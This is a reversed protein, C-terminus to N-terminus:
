YGRDIRRREKKRQISERIDSLNDAVEDSVEEKEIAAAEEERKREEIRRRVGEQIHRRHEPSIPSSRWFPNREKVAAIWEISNVTRRISDAIKNKTGQSMKRGTAKARIKEITEPSHWYEYNNNRWRTSTRRELEEKPKKTGLKALRMKDRASRSHKQGKRM